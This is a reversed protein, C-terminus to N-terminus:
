FRTSVGLYLQADPTARNLGFNGGVDLQLMPRVLWALAFDASYQAVTGAPDFNQATWLEGYLTLTPTLAKGLNVVQQFQAHRQAPNASDALVDAEPVLTLTFGQPLTINVPVILGGEWQGNGIGLRATPAKVYPLLSVSVPADAATLRQKLRLTVDGVGGLREVGSADRSRVQAYPAWNVEVDTSTGLGYKLTPNTYLLTDTTTTGAALRSWNFVDAEIQVQGAPVTCALNSRTPRDTCLAPPAAPQTPEAQTQATATQAAAPQALLALPALFLLSKM